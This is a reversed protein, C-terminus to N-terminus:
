RSEYRRPPTRSRDLRAYMAFLMRSLEDAEDDLADVEPRPAMPLEGSIVLLTRV